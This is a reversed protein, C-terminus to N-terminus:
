RRAGEMAGADTTDPGGLFLPDKVLEGRLSGRGVPTVRTLPVIKAVPKGARSIAIEEGHEVRDIIQFLNAMADHIDFTEM